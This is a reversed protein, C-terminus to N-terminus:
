RTEHAPSPADPATGLLLLRYGDGRALEACLPWASYERGSDLDLVYEERATAGAVAKVPRAPDYPWGKLTIPYSLSGLKTLRAKLARYDGSEKPFSVWVRAARPLRELLVRRVEYDKGLKKRIREEPSATFAALRLRFPRRALESRGELVGVTGQWTALAVTAWAAGRRLWGGSSRASM